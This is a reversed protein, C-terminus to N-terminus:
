HNVCNGRWFIAHGAATRKLLKWWSTIVHLWDGAAAVPHVVIIAVVVNQEEGRVGFFLFAPYFDGSIMPPEGEGNRQNPAIRTM